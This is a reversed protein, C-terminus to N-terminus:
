SKNEWFHANKIGLKQPDFTYKKVGANRQAEYDKLARLAPRGLFFLILIAMLGLLLEPVQVGAFLGPLDLLWRTAPNLAGLFEKLVSDFCSRDAANMFDFFARTVEPRERGLSGDAFIKVAGIRIWEDGYGSELGLDIAADLQAEPIQQLVRLALKGERRLQQFGHLSAAGEMNQVGVIGYEHAKAQALLLQELWDQAPIEDDDIITIFDTAHPVHDLCTNRAYSIGRRPEHYYLLAAFPERIAFCGVDHLVKVIFRSYLLHLM